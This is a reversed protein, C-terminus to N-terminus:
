AAIRGARDWSGVIGRQQQQDRGDQDKAVQDVFAPCPQGPLKQRRSWAVVAGGAADLAIHESGIVVSYAHTASADDRACGKNKPFRLLSM